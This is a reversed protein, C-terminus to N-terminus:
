ATRRYKDRLYKERLHCFLSEWSMGLFLAFFPIIGAFQRQVFWHRGHVAGLLLISLPLFVLIFLFAIQKFRDRLPIFFPIFIGPLLPYLLKYGILNGFVGKLFGTCDKLPSPIYQFPDARMQLHPTVANFIWLPMAVCLVACIFKGADKLIISYSDVNARSALSFIWAPIIMVIMLPHFWIALVFFIGIWIKQKVSLATNREVIIGSLYFAALSLTTLVPYARIETAHLILTANLSLISFSIISGAATRLYKKSIRYFLYFGVVTAIIHPIALGYKNYSFVKFFPYALYHDGSLYSSVEMKPLIKILGLFDGELLSAQFLADGALPTQWLTLLRLYMGYLFILFIIINHLNM